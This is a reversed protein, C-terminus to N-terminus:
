MKESALAAANRGSFVTVENSTVLSYKLCISRVGIFAHYERVYM